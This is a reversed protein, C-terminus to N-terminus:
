YYLVYPNWPKTEELLKKFQNERGCFGINSMVAVWLNEDISSAHTM